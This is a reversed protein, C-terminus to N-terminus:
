MVIETESAKGELFQRVFPHDSNKFTAATGELLITGEHLMAVKDAVRFTAEIDHSIIVSTVGLHKQTNVILQNIADTMIPDLGTTPEDYLLVQPLFAIARALGVRKRMGGSLESPLKSDISKLGVLKLVECVREKIEKPKMPTHERLPFAVNDFVNLSDFLAGNQFLMGIKKRFNKLTIEDMACINKGEIIVEGQDPKLLGNIHKLLVSKGEGSRGLIVTIKGKPISLNVGNLVKQHRFSKHINKLEIM